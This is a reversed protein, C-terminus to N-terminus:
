WRHSGARARARASWSRAILVAWRGAFGRATLMGKVVFHALAFALLVPALPNDTKEAVFAVFIWTLVLTLVGEAILVRPPPLAPRYPRLARGGARVIAGRM